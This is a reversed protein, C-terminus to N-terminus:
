LGNNNIILGAQINFLTTLADASIANHAQQKAWTPISAKIHNVTSTASSGFLQYINPYAIVDSPGSGGQNFNTGKAGM